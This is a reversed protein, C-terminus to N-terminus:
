ALYCISISNFPTPSLGINKGSSFKVKVPALKWPVGTLKGISIAPIAIVITQTNDSLLNFLNSLGAKLTPKGDKKVLPAPM